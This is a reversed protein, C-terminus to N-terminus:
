SRFFCDVRQTGGTRNEIVLAGDVSSITLKGDTGTTGTLAGTTLEVNSGVGTSTKTMTNDSGDGGSWHTVFLEVSNDKSGETIVSVFCSHGSSPLYNHSTDNQIHCGGGMISSANLSNHAKLYINGSSGLLISDINGYTGFMLNSSNTRISSGVPWSTRQEAIFPGRDLKTTLVENLEDVEDNLEDNSRVITAM